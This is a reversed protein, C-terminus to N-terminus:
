QVSETLALIIAALVLIGWAGKDDSREQAVIEGLNYFDQADEPSFVDNRRAMEVYKQLRTAEEKSIPNGTGGKIEHLTKNVSDINMKTTITVLDEKNIANSKFLVSILSMFAEVYVSTMVKHSSILKDHVKESDRLNNQISIINNNISKLAKDNRIGPTRKDM